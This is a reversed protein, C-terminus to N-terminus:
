DLGPEKLTVAPKQPAQQEPERQSEKVLAAAKQLDDILSTLDSVLENHGSLIRQALESDREEPNQSIALKRQQMSQAIAKRARAIAKNLKEEIERLRDLNEAAKEEEGFNEAFDFFKGHEKERQQKVQEQLLKQELDQVLSSEKGKPAAVVQQMFNQLFEPDLELTRVLQPNDAFSRKVLQLRQSPTFQNVSSFSRAQQATKVVNRFKAIANPKLLIKGQMADAGSCLLLLCTFFKTSYKTIRIM